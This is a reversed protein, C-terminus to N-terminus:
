RHQSMAKFVGSPDHDFYYVKAVAIRSALFSCALVAVVTGLFPGVWYIWWGDFNSSIIAPGLTRAPNTSTGSISAELPSMIAYLFPIMFPTFRRLERLSLFVCLSAVLGFTTVVEGLLVTWTSYGQGPLTAAFSISRGMDGWALLPVSGLVAGGLQAVVYGFAVRPKLKGFLLFGLTVAPNIHAGSVDGVPSLAIAAGISGFLFGTLIRRVTLSPLLPAIPSGAGFVLIVISLGGLLLAATGIMESLFIQWPLHLVEPVTPRAELASTDANTM